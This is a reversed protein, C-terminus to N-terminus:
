LCNDALSLFMKHAIVPQGLSQLCDPILIFILCLHLCQLGEPM